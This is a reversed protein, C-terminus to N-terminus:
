HAALVVRWVDAVMAGSPLERYSYVHHDDAFGEIRRESRFKFLLDGSDPDIGEWITFTYSELADIPDPCRERDGPKPKDREPAKSFDIVTSIVWLVGDVERVDKIFLAEKRKQWLVQANAGPRAFVRATEGTSTINEIRYLPGYGIWFGGTKSPAASVSNAYESTAGGTTVSGTALSHLSFAPGSSKGTRPDVTAASLLLALGHRDVAMNIPAFPLQRTFLLNGRSDLGTLREHSLDTALLTDTGIAQLRTIHRFEGPGDGARGWTGAFRGEPSYRAITGETYTRNVLYSGDALRLVKARVQPSAPGADRGIEVAHELRLRCTSCTPRTPVVTVGQLALTSAIAVTSFAAFPLM